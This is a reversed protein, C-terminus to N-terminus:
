LLFYAFGGLLIPILINDLDKLPFIELVMAFFGFYFAFLCNQCVFFSSVFVAFFCALSGCATKGQTFPIKQLGLFKGFLSATGDGFALSFIGIKVASLNNKWLLSCILIGLALTVPGLVFKNEDRKRAAVETIKSVFPVEIGKLRLIECISYLIIALILLLLALNYNYSLVVVVLASCLHISKRFLEKILSNKRRKLEIGYEFSFNKM